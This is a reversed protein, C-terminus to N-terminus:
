TVDRYNKLINYESVKQLYIGCVICIIFNSPFNEFWVVPVSSLMLFSSLLVANYKFSFFALFLISLYLFLGIIGFASLIYIFASDSIFQGPFKGPGFFTTLTNAGLGLGWGFLIDWISHIGKSLIQSWVFIRGEHMILRGSFYKM